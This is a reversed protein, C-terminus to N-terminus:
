PRDIAFRCRSRRVDHPTAPRASTAAANIVGAPQPPSSSAEPLFFFVSAPASPALSALSSPLAPSEPLSALVHTGAGHWGPSSSGVSPAHLETARLVRVTM